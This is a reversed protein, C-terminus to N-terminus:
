LQRLEALVTESACWSTRRHIRVRLLRPEDRFLSLRGYQPYKARLLTAPAGHTADCDPGPASLLEGSGELRIWWLQRWDADYRDLLLTTRPDRRLNRVRQLEGERKPKADIPSWVAGEYWVFVIPVAHPHGGEGVTVLSAVPWIQLLRELYPEPLKM